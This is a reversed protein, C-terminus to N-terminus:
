RKYIAVEPDGGELWYGRYMGPTNFPLAVTGNRDIAILGGTGGLELLRNHIARNTAAILDLHLYEMMASVDYATVSRIFYEGHGTASVACTSNNAYTGAGIIPSDGVRGFRVNSMGGTSTAAALNGSRDLAVAGVTGSKQEPDVNGESLETLGREGAKAKAELLQQWRRETFFYHEPVLEMGQTQAFEEAGASVLLVHSSREMVLRALTVPNKIHRLGAVAGARLTRGDMLAADQVNTGEYTFVAGIGANFLPSDEMANVAFQVADLSSGGTRLIEHGVALSSRLGQLYATELETTMKDRAIAGAGGHIAIGFDTM